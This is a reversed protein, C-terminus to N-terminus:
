CEHQERWSLSLYLLNPFLQSKLNLLYTQPIGSTEIRVTPQALLNSCDWKQTKCSASDPTQLLIRQPASASAHPCPPHCRSWTLGDQDGITNSELSVRWGKFTPSVLKHHLMSTSSKWFWSHPPLQGVTAGPAPPGIWVQLWVQGRFKVRSSVLIDKSSICVFYIHFQMSQQCNAQLYIM